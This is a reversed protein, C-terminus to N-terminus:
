FNELDSKLKELIKNRRKILAPHSIGFRKAVNVLTDEQFYLRDIIEREEANLRGLAEYLREAAMKAEVIKEIDVKPDAISEMFSGEQDYDSFFLLKNERDLRELYHERNTAKWYARYIERSVVVKQGKIFIFYEKEKM